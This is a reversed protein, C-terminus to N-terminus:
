QRALSKVFEELVPAPGTGYNLHGTATWEGLVTRSESGEPYGKELTFFRASSVTTEAPAAGFDVQVMLAVFFANTIRQPEPFQLIACVREGIRRPHIRVQAATLTAKKGCHTEVDELLGALFEEARDSALIALMRLPDELAIQKLAVHCFVYDASVERYESELKELEDNESDDAM